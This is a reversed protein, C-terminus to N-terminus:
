GSTFRSASRAKRWIVCKSVNHSACLTHYHMIRHCYHKKQQPHIQFITLTHSLAELLRQPQQAIQIGGGGRIVVVM